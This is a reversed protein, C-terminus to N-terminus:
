APPPAIALLGHLEQLTARRDQGTSWFGDVGAAEPAAELGSPRGALFVCEAGASKLAQATAEALEAYVPDSTAICAVRAGSASFGAGADGSSTFGEGIIAEIGGSALFNRVWTSRTGHDAPTGLAAVFVRARRGKTGADADAADRLREFPEALRAQRLREVRVAPRAGPPMAQPWPEATVGDEGLRPFASVGTLELGGTALDRRRRRAVAAIEDQFAGSKLAATMGGKAEIQQFLEWSRRALDDTLKEVYWSGGAPDAVRGLSSEEQLVIQINRAVRRAFPDTRGLAFTFPLLLIADAGGFAAAACAITTRVINTWPDRRAMMRWASVATMHVGAAAPGAGCADAVRWILRRAARLKATSLFQDADVALAFAIQPLARDPPLGAEDCARLYAVLTSLVAALEQAESAGAAHYPNGDALLATAGPWAEAKRALDAARALSRDLPDALAGAQALLGIPDANFHGRRAAVATGRAVWLEELAAAAEQTAEGAILAISCAELLVGDLALALTDPALPLGSSGPSAVHLAISTAGGRLDDLIAANAQRPDTESHFQRIDWGAATGAVAGGRTYPAEGPRAAEAEPLADARTYLPAIRIGDLTRSVLRAEFDGGGLVKGVLGLWAEQTAPPFGAALELDRTADAM